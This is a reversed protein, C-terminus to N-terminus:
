ISITEASRGGRNLTWMFMSRSVYVATFLNALLGITLTVAFGRIPGTGFFYLFAASVITTVHTDIITVLAKDFGTDVASKVIKGARLEERIREFILVNSDVAMGITLIVGAIGPLTLTAAFMALGALLLLLNLILAVVANVGSARYYFLMFLVVLGLGVVSAIIGQRISDAGLSPGVTREELYVVKAPLAGSRLTLGLDEAQQQTFSGSIVGSDSIKDNVRAVSRIRGDLVVGLYNGVNAGTWTGFKEAGVPKLSFAVEFGVGQQSQVGRADRLDNGDIVANKEIVYFGTDTAGDSRRESYPLVERDASGALAAEAQEKTEYRQPDPVSRIELRSEGKILEKVREPNDVGPMQVLIQHNEERGHLQVTPEAVGFQNIRQEIITKAQETAEKRLQDAARNTLKFSVSAPATSTSVDWIDSGIFPLIKDRIENHKSTDPTEVVMLGPVDAKVATFPIAADKLEKQAKLGNGATLNKLYEDAQVQMVLHTGGKLDLGLRINESLNQKLRSPKFFDGASVSQDKPKNWPGFMIILSILTVVAIVIGRTRLNKNM